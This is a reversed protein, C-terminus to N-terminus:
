ILSTYSYKFSTVSTVVYIIGHLTVETVHNQLPSPSLHMYMNSFGVAGLDKRICLTVATNPSEKM